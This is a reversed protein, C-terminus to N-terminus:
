IMFSVFPVLRFTGMLLVSKVKLQKKDYSESQWETVAIYCYSDYM